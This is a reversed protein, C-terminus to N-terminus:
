SELIREYIGTLKSTMNTWSFDYVKERTRADIGTYILNLAGLIQNENEIFFLGEGEKFTRPLAGFKTTIVPLNCAMAELVSLPMEISNSKNKVHTPFIYCDSLAYIEEIKDIYEDLILCGNEKLEDVVDKEIGTSLSAVLLIQNLDNQIEKLVQVNRGRKIPGVHLIVFKENSVRYKERLERKRITSVPEFRRIDVGCPLFETKLDLSKFLSETENSQTLIIDPTLIKIFKHFKNSISPHMASMVTKSTPCYLSILKLLIFSKISPGYIFHVIDPNFAKLEKWFSFSLSKKFNTKLIFNDKALEQALHFSVKRMGEDLNELYEGLLCIKM